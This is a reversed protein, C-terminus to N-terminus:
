KKPFIHGTNFWIFIAFFIDLFNNEKMNQLTDNNFSFKAVSALLM